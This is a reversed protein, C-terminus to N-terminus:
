HVEIGQARLAAEVEADTKGALSPNQARVQDFKKRSVRGSPAPGGGSSLARTRAAEMQGLLGDAETQLAEIRKEADVPDVTLALAAARLKAVEARMQSLQASLGSTAVSFARSASAPIGTSLEREKNQIELEMNHARLGLLKRRDEIGANRDADARRQAETLGDAGVPQVYGTQMPAGDLTLPRFGGAGRDYVLRTKRTGKPDSPDLVEVTAPNKYDGFIGPAFHVGAAQAREALDADYEDSADFARPDKLRNAIEAKVMTQARKRAEADLKEREISPRAATWDAAAGIQRVRAGREALKLGRDLRVGARAVDREKDLREDLTRDLAGAALGGGAAGVTGALDEWTTAPHERAHQGAVIVATKLAAGLNGLFGKNHNVAPRASAEDYEAQAVEVETPVHPATPAPVAVPAGDQAPAVGTVVDARLPRMRDPAGPERPMIRVAAPKPAPLVSPVGGVAQADELLVTSVSGDASAASPVAVRPATAVATAVNSAAGPRGFSGVASPPQEGYVRPAVFPEESAAPSSVRIVGRPPDPRTRPVVRM